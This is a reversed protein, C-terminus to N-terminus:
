RALTTKHPVFGGWDNIYTYSVQWGNRSDARLAGAVEFDATSFPAISKLPPKAESKGSSVTLSNLTVYYPTNNAARLKGDASATWVLKKAADEANGPLGSPRYFVKLRYRIALELRNEESAAKAVSPVELVNLWFVSERDAPLPQQLYSIRLTQSKTADIRAIPPTLSFPAKSLEPTSKADGDDIWSQVLVPDKGVNSVKVTIEKAGADYVFRTGSMVVGAWADAMVLGALALSTFAPLIFRRSSHM